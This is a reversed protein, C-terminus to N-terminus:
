LRYLENTVEAIDDLIYGRKNVTKIKIGKCRLRAIHVRLATIYNEDIEGGWIEKILEKFTTVRNFNNILKTLILMETDTVNVTIPAPIIEAKNQNIFLTLM